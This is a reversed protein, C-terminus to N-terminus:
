IQFLRRANESTIEEINEVSSNLIEAMKLAVLRTFAPENREGRHPTPALYPADTEIVLRELPIRPLIEVLKRANKFTLVGGIGYYFKESLDLFLESANFCHLVGGKLNSYHRKLIEHCDENAERCHVILPLDLECALAIQDEFCAKQAVKYVSMDCGEPPNYYDLGCEGVAVCKPHKAWERLTDSSYNALEDPHVGVAFFINENEDAIKAAKPLDNINAGPIIIKDVNAARANALVESLDNEFKFDDLHCHTDIIM